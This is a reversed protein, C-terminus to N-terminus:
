ELMAIYFIFIKPLSSAITQPIIAFAIVQRKPVGSSKLLEISGKNVHKTDDLYFKELFEMTHLELALVCPMARFGIAIVLIM